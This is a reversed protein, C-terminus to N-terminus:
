WFYQLFNRSNYRVMEGRWETEQPHSILSIAPNVMWSHAFQLVLSCIREKRSKAGTSPKAKLFYPPTQELIIIHALNQRSTAEMKICKLQM